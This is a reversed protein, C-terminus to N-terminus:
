LKATAALARFAALDREFFHIAPAEYSILYLRGDVIAGTAEGKRKVEEGQLAFAYAFRFGPRGAFTAPEIADISFLSTGLAVRYSGEFLQAIDHLLMTASFRPLPEDKRNVERFLPKDDAIGGYFTLDNLSLGDITWTEAHRGPRAGLRNWDRSPTVTLTSKAVAVAAGNPMLKYGALVPTAALMLLLTAVMRKM